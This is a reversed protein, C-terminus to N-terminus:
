ASPFVSSGTPENAPRAAPETRWTRRTHPDQALQHWRQPEAARASGTGAPALGATRSELGNLRNALTVM